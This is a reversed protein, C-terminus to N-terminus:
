TENFRYRSWLMTMGDATERFEIPARIGGPQIVYFTYDDAATSTPFATTPRGNEEPRITIHGGTNEVTATPGRFAEYTGAVADLKAELALDPVAEVPDEGAALALIGTGYAEPAVGSTNVAIAVGLERDPVAGVYARARDVGGTHGVIREGLFPGVILGFGYGWEEGDVTSFTRVQEDTMAAVSDAGLIRTGDLSGDNLLCRLLRALETVSSILGGDAPQGELELPEEAPVRDDGDLTYGTTADDAEFVRTQDFTSREMGLPVLVEETVYDTFRRGDVAEVLEGLVKYGSNSYMFPPDDIVRHTAGGDIHLQLDRKTAVNDREAISDSPVGSTHTLLERVTIPNGPADTLIPVHEASADDLAIADREALQLVAIVTVIKTVSAVNYLTDPTAPETEELSRAGLGTAYLVGESDFVAVSCGPIDEDALWGDLFRDIERETSAALGRDMDTM